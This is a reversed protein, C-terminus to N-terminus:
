QREPFQQVAKKFRTFADFLPQFAAQIEKEDNNKYAMELRLAANGLEKGGMTLASGKITHAERRAGEWDKAKTLVPIAALQEESREIFQSLLSRALEKNDMFTEMLDQEDFITKDPSSVRGSSVAERLGSSVTQGGGNKGKPAESVPGENAAPAWNGDYAPGDQRIGIWKNLMAELDPRKFPKVLIDDFGVSMCREREDSLASATVAIVPRKFGQKRLKEVSEYGNMRPMQIDSFILAVPNAAAKELADLGDDALIVPYHLKQMFMAFLKQNVPHDEAILILPKTESDESKGAAAAATQPATYVGPIEDEEDGSVAELEDPEALAAEITEALNRRKIPKNIYAKFWKLLTMKTDAGVMGHPVMLILAVSDINEDNRIEAALRWGDMVPMVSDIFCLEYSKRSSSGSRLMALAEEGSSAADINIYGLDGLYSVIINRPEPRDDIVLIRLEKHGALPLVEVAADSREVPLTFRFISGGGENPVMEIFGGM